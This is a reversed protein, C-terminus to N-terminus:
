GTLDDLGAALRALDHEDTFFGTSIRLARPQPVWRLVIGRAALTATAAEVDVGALTFALLGAAGGPPTLVTAGASGLVTRAQAMSRATQQAAWEWGTLGQPEDEDRLGALWDLSASWGPVLFEPLVGLELKRADPHLAVSGDMGHAAGSGMGGFTLDIRELAEQAVWLAGLGEPGLLWKQAPFAYADVGLLRPEAAIAGIGQAGDILVFAGVQRAARAAGAVDMQAGTTWAVHSLAVLRTRPGALAAVREELPEGGTALEVTRIRVGRRRALVALPVTLGPHELNTTIAEDGERWDLGWITQCLGSTVSTTLAIESAAGGILDALQSRLHARAEEIALYESLSGRGQGLAHEAAAQIATVTCRPLPGAGGANLYTEGRVTPLEARVLQLFASM